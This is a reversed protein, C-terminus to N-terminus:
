GSGLSISKQACPFFSGFRRWRGTRYPRVLNGLAYTPEKGQAMSGLPLAFLDCCLFRRPNFRRTEQLALGIERGKKEGVTGFNLGKM